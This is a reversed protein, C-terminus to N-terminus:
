FGLLLVSNRDLSNKDQFIVVEPRFGLDQKKPTVKAFLLTM